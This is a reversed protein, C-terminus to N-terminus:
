LSHTKYPKELIERVSCEKSPYFYNLPHFTFLALPFFLFLSQILHSKGLLSLFSHPWQETPESGNNLLLQPFVSFHNNFLEKKRM